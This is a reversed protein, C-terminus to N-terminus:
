LEFVPRGLHVSRMILYLLFGAPGFLFTLVLSPAVIWVPIGRKLADQLEWRGTFLDFALYHVWGALLVWPSSFLTQVGGLTGFGGSIESRHIVLIATYLISLLVPLGATIASGLRHRGALLLVAWGALALLNAASFVQEPTM